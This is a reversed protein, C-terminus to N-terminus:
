RRQPAVQLAPHAHVIRELLTAVGAVAADLGFLTTARRRGAAGMRRAAAADDLLAALRGAMDDHDGDATLWGSEGHAVLEPVGGVRSAVVPLGSAMAEMLALPMGESHSSCLLVDLENYLAPMDDRVGVFHVVEELGLRQRTQELDARLEGDGVFVWRAAPCRGHLLMAARLAVHPGKESSLRGVVGVLPVGADLGLERRLGDSRRPRPAFLASDVGNPELSLLSPNVGMGLAQYYAPRCVVSLHSRVSRHVELDLTTLQRGHITALVPRETLRAVLGALLHARPLHAHLVDIQSATTLAAAMQLTSWPPDQPMEGIVVDVDLGRLRETFASEFPCLATFRFRERPLRELSRLVWTEMGGVIANGIVELVHVRRRPGALGASVPHLLAESM